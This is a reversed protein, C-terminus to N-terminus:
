PKLAHSRLPRHAGTDRPRSSKGDISFRPGTFHRMYFHPTVSKGENLRTDTNLLALDILHQHHQDDAESILAETQPFLPRLLDYKVLEPFTAQGHGAQLLKLIEDFLRSPSVDKFPPALRRIPEATDAELQLGLKGVFRVARLMRVPDERYRTEPDGIIRIM